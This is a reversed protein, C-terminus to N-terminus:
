RPVMGSTHPLIGGRIITDPESKGLANTNLVPLMNAPIYCIAAAVVLAWTYQLSNHHRSALEGGCRPCYGPEALEVPRPLVSCTECSALGAQAPPRLSPRA